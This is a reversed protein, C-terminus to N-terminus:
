QEQGFSALLKALYYSGEQYDKLRINENPSHPDSGAYHIGVLVIPVQLTKQFCRGPGGGPVNPVLLSSDQGYVERATQLCLQVFPNTLPTLFAEEGALYSLQLDAFGNERLQQQILEFIHHPEQGAYLRCDLKARAQHPIITKAGQGEYGASLGNITLTSGAVLATKPDSSVFPRKLGYQQKIKAADFDMQQIAQKTQEDLPVVQDYFGAVKVKGQEDVLSNLAKVLRWAANDIYSAQSSHIDKEATTVTMEFAMIGKMGCTVQFRERENKMGGEWICADAALRKAYHQVYNAIHLSGIEEEGEVVFKLNCPLGGHQQYYKVVSLRAMLEGKDDSIGRAYLKGDRITPEFPPTQWLSNDGAPQVDYHNYFLVTQQQRANFEAFVVPNGGFQNWTEVTSAGLSRFTNVLWAVTEDIGRHEAAIGPIELYHKLNALDDLVFQGVEEQSLRM